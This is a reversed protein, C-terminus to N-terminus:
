HPNTPNYCPPLMSCRSFRLPAAHQARPAEPLIILGHLHNPMVVYADLEVGARHERIARWCEDVTAGIRSLAVKDDHVRGLICKKGNTCITVFYVGATAYDYTRMRVSRRYPLGPIPLRRSM